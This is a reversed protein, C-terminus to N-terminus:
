RRYGGRKGPGLVKRCRGRVQYESLGVLTAIEKFSCGLRRWSVCEAVKDPHRRVAPRMKVGRALLRQKVYDRSCKLQKALDDLSHQETTYLVAMATTNLPATPDIGRRPLGMRLALRSVLATGCGLAKAIAENTEGALRMSRLRGLDVPKTHPHNRPNRIV